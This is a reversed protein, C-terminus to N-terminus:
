SATAAVGKVTRRTYILFKGGEEVLRVEFGDSQCADRVTSAEEGTAYLRGDWMFKKGDSVLSLNPNM